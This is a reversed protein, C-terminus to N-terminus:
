SPGEPATASPGPAPPDGGQVGGVQNPDPRQNPDAPPGSPQGPSPDFFEEWPSTYDVPDDEIDFDDSEEFTEFEEEAAIRSLEHRIMRRQMEFIDPQAQYGLPPEMITPDPVEHGRVNLFGYEESNAIAIEMYHQILAQREEERIRAAVLDHESPKM